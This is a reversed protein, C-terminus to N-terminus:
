RSEVMAGYEAKDESRNKVHSRAFNPYRGAFTISKQLNPLLLFIFATTQTYPKAPHM